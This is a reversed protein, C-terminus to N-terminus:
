RLRLKLMADSLNMYIVDAPDLRLWKPSLNFTTKTRGIWAYTLKKEAVQAAEDASFVISVEETELDKTVVANSDRAAHQTNTQYDRDPDYHTLDIRLPLELEQARTETVRIPSDGSTGESAGLDNYPITAASDQGRPIFRLVGDTEVADVFFANLLPELADRASTRRSVVYGRVSQEIANTLIDTQSLGAKECLSTLVSSLSVKDSGHRELPYKVEGAHTMIVASHTFKEYCGTSHTAFTALYPSLDISTEIEM